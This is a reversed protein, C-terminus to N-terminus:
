AIVLQKSFVAVVHEIATGLIIRKAAAASEIHAVPISAKIRGRRTLQHDIGRLALSLRPGNQM